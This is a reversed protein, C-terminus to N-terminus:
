PLEIKRTEVVRKWKEIESQVHRRMEDPSSARPTGGWEAFRQTIERINDNLGYAEHIVVVGPRPRDADPLALFGGGKLINRPVDRTNM